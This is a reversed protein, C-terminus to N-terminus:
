NQHCLVKRFMDDFLDAIISWDYKLAANRCAISLRKFEGTEKKWMEYYSLVGNVIEDVNFPNAIFGIDYKKVIDRPAGPIDYCAVPMGSSLAELVVLGFTEYRSPFLLIHSSSFLQTFERQPLRECVKVNDGFFRELSTFYQSMFGRGTLTFKLDPAKRLVKPVIKILMEAGKQYRPSVFVVTFKNSKIGPKFRNTNVGLPVYYCRFGLSKLLNYECTNLAHLAAIPKAIKMYALKVSSMANYVYNTLRYPNFVISPSHFAYITPTRIHRFIVNTDDWMPPSFKAFYMLDFKKIDLRSALCSGIRTNVTAIEYDRELLESILSDEIYNAILLSIKTM